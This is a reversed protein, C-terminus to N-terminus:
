ILTYDAKFDVTKTGDSFQLTSDYYEKGDYFSTLKPRITLKDKKDEIQLYGKGRWPPFHTRCSSEPITRYYIHNSAMGEPLGPIPPVFTVQLNGHDWESQKGSMNLSYRALSEAFYVALRKQNEEVTSDPYNRAYTGYYYDRQEKPISGKWGMGSLKRYSDLAILMNDTINGTKKFIEDSDSIYQVFEPLFSEMTEDFINANKMNSELLTRISSGNDIMSVFKEFGSVYTKIGHDVIAHETNMEFLKYGSTDEVRLVMEVGPKYFKEVREKLSLLQNISCIEAIDIIEGFKSKISGWPILIPIKREEKMYASMISRVNYVSEIEPKPGYRIEKSAYLAEELANLVMKFNNLNTGEIISSLFSVIKDGYPDDNNLTKLNFNHNIM